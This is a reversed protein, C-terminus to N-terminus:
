IELSPYHSIRKIEKDEDTVICVADIRYKKYLRCMEPNFVLYSEAVRKIQTLKSRNIMEEPQGYKDGVKLKVEVFVLVDKDSMVLDIEGIKNQYNSEIFRFNKYILYDKAMSEGRKGKIYNQQKM